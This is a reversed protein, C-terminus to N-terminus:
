TENIVFNDNAGVIRYKLLSDLGDPDHAAITTVNDGAKATEPISIKYRPPGVIPLSDYFQRAHGKFIPRQNGSIGVRVLVKSTGKM